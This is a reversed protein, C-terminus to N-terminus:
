VGHIEAILDLTDFNGYKFTYPTHAYQPTESLLVNKLYDSSGFNFTTMEGYDMMLEDIDFYKDM